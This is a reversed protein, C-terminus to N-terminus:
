LSEVPLRNVGRERRKNIERVSTQTTQFPIDSPLSKPEATPAIPDTIEFSLQHNGELNFVLFGFSLRHHRYFVLNGAPLRKRPKGESARYRPNVEM